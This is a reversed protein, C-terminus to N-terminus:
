ILLNTSSSVFFLLELLVDTVIAYPLNHLTAISESYWCCSKSSNPNYIISDSFSIYKFLLPFVSFPVYREKQSVDM